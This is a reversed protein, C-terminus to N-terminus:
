KKRATECALSDLGPKCEVDIGKNKLGMAFLVSHWLVRAALAPMKCTSSGSCHNARCYLSPTGKDYQQQARLPLLPHCCTGLEPSSSCRPQRGATQGLALWTHRSNAVQTLLQCLGLCPCTTGTFAEEDALKTYGGLIMFRGSCHQADSALETLKCTTCGLM